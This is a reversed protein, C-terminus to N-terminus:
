LVPVTPGALGHAVAYRTAEVRGTLGLKRYVTALHREVTAPSLYLSAAIQKNSMGAALLRLVEAQRATLGDPLAGVGAEGIEALAARVEALRQPNAIGDAMAEAARLHRAAEEPRNLRFSARGLGILAEVADHPHGAEQHALAAAQYHEAAEAWQEQQAALNGQNCRLTGILQPNGLGVALEAAERLPRGAAEWQASRILVDSLNALGIALSRHEGLQRKIVLTQEFLERARALDGDDVALLAMNNMAVSVGRRDGLAARLDMATQFSRRAAARDGLYRHASGLVTAAFATRERLGLPELIGLALRAQRVAEGYDGNEAALVAASCLARGTPEDRRQGVKALFRALWNRGGALRGSVLWWRWLAASMDLGLDVDANEDAWLLAVDVDPVAAELRATWSAPDSGALGSESQRALEAFHEAHRRRVPAGDAQEDLRAAAFSRMTELMSFQNREAGRTVVLWSSDVLGRIAHTLAAGDAGSVARADDMSFPGAFVSLAPLVQRPGPRLLDYSTRVM